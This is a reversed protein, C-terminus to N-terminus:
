VLLLAGLAFSVAVTLMSRIAIGSSGMIVVASIGAMFPEILKAWRRGAQACIQERRLEAHLLASIKAAAPDAVPETEMLRARTIGLAEIRARCDVCSQLHQIGDAIRWNLAEGITVMTDTDPCESM